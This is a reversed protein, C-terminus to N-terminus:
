VKIDWTKVEEILNYHTLDFHVPTISIYNDRIACVDSDEKQEEEIIEGGMWYYEQGRPDIRKIFSNSYRRIGLTTIKVGKITKEEKNPININLLTDNPLKKYQFYDIISSSIKAALDFNLNKNGVLSIAVAQIGQIAGEIAASVTGSYLIDTGLNPGDNIGSVVLDPKKEIIAEVGLKVCDSPTGDVSWAELNTDYFKVKRVRLPHHMTIAHGTASRERDPAIVTVSHSLSLIKALKYIGEAFIGDDNTILIKLTLDV